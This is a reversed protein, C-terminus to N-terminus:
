LPLAECSQRHLRMTKCLRRAGDKGETATVVLWKDVGKVNTKRVTLVKNGLEEPFKAKIQDALAKAEAEDQGAGLTVGWNAAKTPVTTGLKEQHMAPANPPKPLAGYKLGTSNITTAKVALQQDLLQDLAAKERRMEDPSILDQTRFRELRGVSEAVDLVDKPPLPPIARVKPQIPLLADLIVNREANAERPLMERAEISAKLMKLRDSVQTDDPIPRDLGVAPAAGTLPLLAGINSTRRQAYEDPTILEEDLLRRLIRFRGAMSSEYDMPRTSPLVAGRGRGSEAVSTASSRGTIKDVKDLNTQAVEVM